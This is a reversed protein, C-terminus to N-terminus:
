FGYKQTQKIKIDKEIRDFTESLGKLIDDYKLYDNLMEKLKTNIENTRMEFDRLQKADIDTIVMNPSSQLTKIYTQSYAILLSTGIYSNVKALSKELSYIYANEGKQELALKSLLNVYRSIAPYFFINSSAPKTPTDGYYVYNKVGSNKAVAVRIANLSENYFGDWKFYIKSSGESQAVIIGKLIESATDASDVDAAKSPIKRKAVYYFIKRDPILTGNDDCIEPAAKKVADSSFGEILGKIAVSSDIAPKSYILALSKGNNVDSEGNSAKALKGIAADKNLTGDSNLVETILNINASPAVLDGYLLLMLKYM